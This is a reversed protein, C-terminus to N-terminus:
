PLRPPFHLSFSTSCLSQAFTQSADPRTPLGSTSPIYVPSLRPDSAQASPDRVTAPFTSNFVDPESLETPLSGPETPSVEPETPHQQPHIAPECLETLERNKKSTLGSPIPGVFPGAPLSSANGCTIRAERLPLAFKIDLRMRM